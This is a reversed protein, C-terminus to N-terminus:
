VPMRMIENFADVAKNKITVVADTALRAESAAIMYDHVDQLDGTAAQTAYTDATSQLGQLQGISQTLVDAFTSGQANVPAQVASTASGGGLGGVGQTLLGSVDTAPVSNSAGNAIYGSNFGVGYGTTLAIPSTM